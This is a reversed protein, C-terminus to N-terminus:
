LYLGGYAPSQISSLQAELKTLNKILELQDIEAMDAWRQFLPVGAAKEMVIYEAGVPNSSDSSWSLVRPVPISTHKRIYELVGVESATTLCAPGAIRCPIKAIVEQGNEKKMLLAKSFGGEM